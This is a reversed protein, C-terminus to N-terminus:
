DVPELPLLEQVPTPPPTDHPNLADVLATHVDDDTSGIGERADDQQLERLDRLTPLESLDRLGFLSLFDPTTGYLLPRGPEDKRGTVAILGRESLMRLIGGPDVGRLYEVEARTVRQRYAVSSLTEVAAKSLKESLNSAQVTKNVSSHRFSFLSRNTLARRLPKNASLCEDRGWFCFLVFYQHHHVFFFLLASYFFFSFRLEGLPELARDDVYRKSSVKASTIQKGALTASQMSLAM